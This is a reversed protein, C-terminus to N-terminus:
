PLPVGRSAEVVAYVDARTLRVRLADAAARIREPRQTGLLAVPEAPHALVFALAVSARDAGEREALRDLVELLEKRVGRGTAVRGGALPSWALPRLGRALCQDLTGDFLPELRCVSLEPQSSVLPFPLHAALAEVQTPAFNSVGVERVKGSERLSALAGAVEAPHAFLDPRHIQYLDLADTRLRRLSAECAERLHRASADYPVGPVIGGKSALVMRSRLAPAERLVEGLLSECAGFGSGGWDLGYVDATDVLNMGADLATEVRCRAEAASAQVLRWCGFALPGVRPLSGLARPERRVLDDDGSV